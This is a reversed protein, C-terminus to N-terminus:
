LLWQRREEEPKALEQRLVSLLFSHKGHSEHTALNCVQSEFGCGWRQSHLYHLRLTDELLSVPHIDCVTSVKTVSCRPQAPSPLSDANSWDLPIQAEKPEHIRPTPHRLLLSTPVRRTSPSLTYLVLLSLISYIMVPATRCIVRAQRHIYNRALSSRSKGKRYRTSASRSRPFTQPTITALLYTHPIFTLIDCSMNVIYASRRM